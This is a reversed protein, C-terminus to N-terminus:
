KDVRVYRNNIETLILIFAFLILGIACAYGANGEIFANRFMYLGPVMGVGQPGGSDGLVILINGFSQLEGIILLVLMIRVQTAILPLEIHVFKRWWNIGDVDAAEYVDKSISQLGALFILVGVVGVWPFGWFILSPIVLKADGLWSPNQGAQFIGWHFLTDLGNLVAMGGSANLLRNLVGQTPDYFFKWLLLYVMGPIIMPIVFLVRYFYQWRDSALRHLVVATLISPLMKVISAVVLIFTVAFGSWLLKDGTQMMAQYFVWLFGYLCLLGRLWESWWRRVAAHLFVGAATCALARPFWVQLEAANLGFRGAAGPGALWFVGGAAGALGLLAWPAWRRAWDPKRTLTALLLVVWLAFLGWLLPEWGLLRRFNELGIFDEVTSCNWRYFAHYIASAAPFYAFLAVLAVSPLVFGYLAWYRSLRKFGIIKAM